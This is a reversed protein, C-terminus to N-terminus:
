KIPYFLAAKVSGEICTVKVTIERVLFDLRTYTLSIQKNLGILVSYFLISINPSARCPKVPNSCIAITLTTTTAIM